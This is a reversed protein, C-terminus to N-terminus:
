QVPDPKLYTDNLQDCSWLLGRTILDLYRDDSVTQNNHGLTTAFVRTKERYRNTWVIVSNADKTTGDKSKVVQHGAALPSATELLKGVSNNYLEENITTWGHMGATIPDQPSTFTIEIPIQPGHGTTQLGTFEFWPTLNPFGASRYCHMGCHLVVGPLGQRHPELIRDIIGPDKVDATCEDHIVIDYGEAWHPQEYVPNLHRTTTDPDYAIVVEVHARASIGQSLIQQQTKYDHCCGGLVLLARLPRSPEAARVEAISSAGAFMWIVLLSIRSISGTQCRIRNLM